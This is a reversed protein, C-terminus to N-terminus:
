TGLDWGGARLRERAAASELVSARGALTLIAALVSAGGAMLTLPSFVRALISGVTWVLCTLALAASAGIAADASWKVARRLQTGVAINVVGLGLLTYLLAVFWGRVHFGILMQLALLVASIGGLLMAAAAAGVIAKPRSREIDDPQPASRDVRADDTPPQYYQVRQHVRTFIKGYPL